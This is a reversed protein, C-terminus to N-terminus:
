RPRSLCAPVRYLSNCLSAISDRHESQLEHHQNALVIKSAGLTELWMKFKNKLGYPRRSKTAATPSRGSDPVLRAQRCPTQPLGLWQAALNTGARLHAWEPM